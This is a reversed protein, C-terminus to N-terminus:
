EYKIAFWDIEASLGSGEYAFPLRFGNNFHGASSGSDIDMEVSKAQYVSTRTSPHSQRDTCLLLYPKAEMTSDFSITIYENDYNKAHMFVLNPKFTLSNVTLASWTWYYDANEYSHVYTKGLSVTNNGSKATKIINKISSVKDILSQMSETKNASVNKNTLNTAFTNKLTEIKTKTTSLKDVSLFPSGLVNAINNKGGQFDTQISQLATMLEGLSANETLKETM